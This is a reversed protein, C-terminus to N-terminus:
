LILEDETEPEENNDDDSYEEEDEILYDDFDADQKEKLNLSSLYYVLKNHAEKLEELEKKIEDIQESM